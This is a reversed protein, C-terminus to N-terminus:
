TSDLASLLHLLVQGRELLQFSHGFTLEGILDTSMFYWWKFVDMVGRHKAEQQMQRIALDVKDTIVPQMNELAADAM